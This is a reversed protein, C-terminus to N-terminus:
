LIQEDSRRSVRDRRLGRFDRSRPKGHCEQDIKRGCDECQSRFNAKSRHVVQSGM